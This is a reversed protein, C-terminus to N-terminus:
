EPQEGCRGNGGDAEERRCERLIRIKAQEVDCSGVGLSAATTIYPVQEVPIGLLLCGYADTLVPDLAAM